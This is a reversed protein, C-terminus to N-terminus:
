KIEIKESYNRWMKKEKIKDNDRRVRAKKETKINKAHKNTQLVLFVPVLICLLPLLHSIFILYIGVFLSRLVEM